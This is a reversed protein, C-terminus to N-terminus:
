WFRAQRGGCRLRVNRERCGRGDEVEVGVRKAVGGGEGDGDCVKM